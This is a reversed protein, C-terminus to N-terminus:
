KSQNTNSGNLKTNELPISKSIRAATMISKITSLATKDSGAATIKIQGDVEKDNGIEDTNLKAPTKLVKM